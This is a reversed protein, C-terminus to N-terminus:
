IPPPDLRYLKISDYDGALAKKVTDPVDKLEDDSVVSLALELNKSRFLVLGEVATQRMVEDKDFLLGFLVIEVFPSGTNLLQQVSEIRIRDDENTTLASRVLAATAMISDPHKALEKASNIRFYVDLLYPPMPPSSDNLSEESCGGILETCLQVVNNKSM